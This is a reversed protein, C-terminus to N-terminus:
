APQEASLSRDRNDREFQITRAIRLNGSWDDPM